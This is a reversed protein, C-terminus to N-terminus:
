GPHILFGGRLTLTTGNWIQRSDPKSRALQFRGYPGEIRVTQGTKVRHALKNTFDGLAKIFFAITREGREASAITFPHAGESREFAIFAFKGPRHAQWPEDLRCTIQTV